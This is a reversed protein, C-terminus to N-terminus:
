ENVFTLANPDAKKTWKFMDSRINGGITNKYYEGHLMENNVDWHTLQGKFRGVIDNAHDKCQQEQQSPNMYKLWKPVYKDVGWFVTHGRVPINKSKLMGLARDVEKFNRNGKSWEIQRWKMKNEFVAYNFNDYFFQRYKHNTAFLQADIASGFPFLHKQQQIHVTVNKYESGLTVKLNSKRLRDISENSKEYFSEPVKSIKLSANDVLYDRSKSPGEVYFELVNITNPDDKIQVQGSLLGWEGPVTCLKGFKLWQDKKTRYDIKVTLEYTDMSKDSGLSKVWVQATYVVNKMIHAGYKLSQVPGAWTDQRQTVKMARKGSIVDKTEPVGVCGQCGWGIGWNPSIEFDPDKLKEQGNDKKPIKSEAQPVPKSVPAKGGGMSVLSMQDILYDSKGFGEIYLTVSGGSASVVGDLESWTNGAVTKSVQPLYQPKGSGEVKATLSVKHSGTALVKIWGKFHYSGGDSISNGLNYNIGAWAAARGSVKLSSSGEKKDQTFRTAKCNNCFWNTTTGWTGADSEANGNKLMNGNVTVKAMPASNRPQVSPAPKWNNSNPRSWNNNIPKPCDTKKCWRQESESTSENGIKTKCARKSGRNCHRTRKITGSGCSKSCQSWNGWNNWNGWGMSDNEGSNTNQAGCHSPNCKVEEKNLGPCKGWGVQCNRFRRKKGGNCPGHCDSWNAWNSWQNIKPSTSLTLTLNM